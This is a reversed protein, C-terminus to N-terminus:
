FPKQEIQVSWGHLLSDHNSESEFKRSPCRLDRIQGFSRFAKRFTGNDNTFTLILKYTAYTNLPISIKIEEVDMGLKPTM